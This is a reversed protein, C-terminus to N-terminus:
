PGVARDILALAEADQAYGERLAAAREPTLRFGADILAAAGPKNLAIALDFPVMGGADPANPDAGAAILANIVEVDCGAAMKLVSNGRDDQLNVDAGREILLRTIEATEPPTPQMFPCGQGFYLTHLPRMGTSEDVRQDPDMGADLFNRVLDIQRKQLAHYLEYTSFEVGAARLATLASEADGSGAPQAVTAVDRDPASTRVSNLAQEVFDRNLVEGALLQELKPIAASADTGLDRIGFCAGRHASDDTENEIMELYIPIVEDPELRLKQLARVAAGRVDAEPDNLAAESLPGLTSTAVARLTDAPFAQGREGIAEIAEVAQERHTPDGDSEVIKLLAPVASVAHGGARGLAFTADGILDPDALLGTVPQVWTTVGEADTARERLLKLSARQDSERPSGLLAVLAATWDEPKPELTELGLALHGAGPAVERIAVFVPPVFSPDSGRVMRELVDVPSLYTEGLDWSPSGAEEAAVEIVPPALRSGEVFGILERAALIRDRLREAGLGSVRADVLEEAPVGLSELASAARVRVGPSPDELAGRLAPEAAAAHDSIRWLTDAAQRRVSADEDGALVDAILRVAEPTKLNGLNRVAERREAPDDSKELTRTWQKMAKSELDGFQAEAIPAAVIVAVLLVLTTRM